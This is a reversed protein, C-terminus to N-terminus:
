YGLELPTFIADYWSSKSWDFHGIRINAEPFSVLYLYPGLTPDFHCSIFWSLTSKWLCFILLSCPWYGAMKVLCAVHLQIFSENHPKPSIRRALWLAYTVRLTCSPAIKSTQSPLWLVLNPEHQGSVSSAM